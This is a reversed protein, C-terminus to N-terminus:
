ARASVRKVAGCEQAPRTFVRTVSCAKGSSNAWMVQEIETIEHFHNRHASRADMLMLREGRGPIMLPTDSEIKWIRECAPKPGYVELAFSGVQDIKFSRPDM